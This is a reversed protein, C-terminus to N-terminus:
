EREEAIIDFINDIEAENFGFKKLNEAAGREERALMTRRSKSVKLSQRASAFWRLFDADDNIYAEIVSNFFLAQTLSDRHLKIKLKVKTDELTSFVVRDLESKSM